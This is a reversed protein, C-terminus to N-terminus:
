HQVLLVRELLRQVQMKEHGGTNALTDPLEVVHLEVLQSSACV